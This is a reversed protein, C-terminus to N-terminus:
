SKESSKKLIDSKGFAEVVIASCFDKIGIESLRNTIIFRSKELIGLPECEVVVEANVQPSKPMIDRCVISIRHYISETQTKKYEYEAKFKFGYLAGTYNEYLNEFEIVSLKSKNFTRNKM